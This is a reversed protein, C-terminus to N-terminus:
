RIDKEMLERSIVHATVPDHEHRNVGKILIPQGNILFQGGSVEISRFGIQDSVSAVVDYGKKLTIQLTYLNPTEATWEDVNLIRKELEHSLHSHTPVTIRDTKNYVRSGNPKFLETHVSIREDSDSDNNINIELQFKGDKFSKDLTAKAWFDSIRLKPEAALFVDREIGSIRWFDQCELYTGDSWRYVQLAVLNRGTKVYETVDFEAPLKSGQSYGVKQGNMWLFFASKVAGFHIVLRHDEWTSPIIFEKRYSGVPNYGDPINPPDPNYSFEYPHNLYIPVGYGNIEWNAPVHIENWGSDDYDTQYFDMPRDAPDRVWNFKWGGNLSQYYKSQSPDNTKALAKSEYNFFTARAPMKNIEIVAPDEIETPTNAAFIM